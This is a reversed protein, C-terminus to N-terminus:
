LPNEPGPRPNKLHYVTTVAAPFERISVCVHPIAFPLQGSEIARVAADQSGFSEIFVTALIYIEDMGMPLESDVAHSEELFETAARDGIPLLPSVAVFAEVEFLKWAGEDSSKLLYDGSRCNVSGAPLQRTVNSMRAVTPGSRVSGDLSLESLLM